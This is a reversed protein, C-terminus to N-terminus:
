RPKKHPHPYIFESQGDDINAILRDLIDSLDRLQEDTFGSFAERANENLLSRCRHALLRGKETITLKNCRLNTKDAVKEILGAAQMRKTSVAISATSVKMHEALDRQTCGHHEMLYELMPLQGFHIGTNQCLRHLRNRMLGMFRGLKRSVEAQLAAM